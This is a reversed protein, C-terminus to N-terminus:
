PASRQRASNPLPAPPAPSVTRAEALGSNSTKGTDADSEPAWGPPGFLHMWFERPSRANKLDRFFQPLESIWVILPNVAEFDRKLGYRPTEEERQYTGFLRDWVILIGGYNKDIYKDDCGHHVRHNSPTNLIADLFGLRGILETHIWTQYALVFFIGFLVVSPPFGLFILPLHALASLVGELPGFRIAVSTNMYRSSHHVAHQTWFLRVRHAIRHEWYYFFDCAIVGLLITWVTIPFTWGVLSDAILVYGLYALSLLFIEALLSPIQTSISAIMDLFGRWRFSPSFLGKVIEIALIAAGILFFVDDFDTALQEVFQPTM